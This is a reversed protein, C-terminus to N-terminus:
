SGDGSCSAATVTYDATSEAGAEVTVTEPSVDADFTLVDGDEFDVESTFGLNWDGPAVVDLAFSGDGAVSASKVTEPDSALAATPVFDEVSRASGGCEPISVGEALTVTGAISGAESAESAVIVPHMVWMGSMGAQRGFSQSVDFDLILDADASELQLNGDPLKVKIGTQPCSPCLLNGVVNSETVGEPLAPDGMVYADGGTGDGAEVQLVADGVIVRVETYTGSPVEAENVLTRTTGVLDTLRILDTPEDLLSLPGDAGDPPGNGDDNEGNGNEGDEEDAPGGVLQLDTIEVWVAHVDGPADTLQVSLSTDGGPGTMGDDGCASLGLALGAALLGTALRTSWSRVHRRLM